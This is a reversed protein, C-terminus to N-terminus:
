IALELQGRPRGPPERRLPFQWGESSRAFPSTASGLFAAAAELADQGVFSAGHERAARAVADANEVYDTLGPIVPTVAAGCPIGAEVLRAIVELRLRPSTAGPEIHRLIGDDLTPITVIVACRAVLSLQLLLPLDRLVLPSRTVICCPGAHDRFARLVRRTLGYKLEARQYPDSAAGIVVAERRWDPRGLERRLVEVVNTKVIVRRESDRRADHGLCDHSGSPGCHLRAQRSERYPDLTWLPEPAAARVVRSLASKCEIEEFVVQPM